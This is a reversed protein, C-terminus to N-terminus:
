YIAALLLTTATKCVGGIMSTITIIRGRKTKAM